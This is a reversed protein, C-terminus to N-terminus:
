SAPGSGTERNEFEDCMKEVAVEADARLSDYRYWGWVRDEALVQLFLQCGEKYGPKLFAELHKSIVCSKDKKLGSEIKKKCSLAEARTEMLFSISTGHFVPVQIMNRILSGEFGCLQRVASAVEGDIGPAAPLLNFALQEKFVVSPPRKFNMVAKTQSFLEEIGEKGETAAPQFVTWYFSKAAPIGSLTLIRSFFCAEAPPVFFYNSLPATKNEINASYNALDFVLAKASSAFNMLMQRTGENGTLIFLADYGKLYEESLPLYLRCGERDDIDLVTDGSGEDFNVISAEEVGAEKLRRILEDEALSNRGVIAVRFDEDPRFM